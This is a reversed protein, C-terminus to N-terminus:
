SGQPPGLYLCWECCYMFQQNGFNKVHPLNGHSAGAGRLDMKINDVWWHRPRGLPGKVEPKGVLLWYENIKDWKMSCPRGM